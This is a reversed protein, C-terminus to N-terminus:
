DGLQTRLHTIEEKFRHSRDLAEAKDLHARAVDMQGVALAIKAVNLEFYPNAPDEAAAALTLSVAQQTDHLINFQYAGYNNMITARVKAPFRPNALATEVMRSLAEPELSLPQNSATVLLDLFPNLRPFYSLAAIRNTLDELRAAPVPGRSAKILILEVLAHIQGPDLEAAREFYPLAALDASERTGAKAGAIIVARGAEYQSRASAPHHRAEAIALTLPDSWQLTRVATLGALGATLAIGLVMTSRLTLRSRVWPIILAALGLILGMMPLYNRHEFVIELPLFSSEMAHGVLFWGAAFSYAPYRKRLLWASAIVVAIFLIAFLTGAPELLRTSIVIDDHYLAMWGPNPVIIWLLYHCLVRAETLLREALSFDRLAYAQSLWDPHTVVFAFLLLLPLGVSTLFFAKLIRNQKPQITEFQFCTIEVVWALAFILAGSEKSLIALLGFFCLGAISRLLGPEGRTMRLRADTYWLLGCLTFLASLETMRQVIYAVTSVNLPHLLWLAAILLAVWRSDSHSASHPNSPLRPVLRLALLYLLAGNALHILLNVAKFAWPNMGFLVTDLGFSLMSVPRRLMGADSSMAVAMWDQASTGIARLAANDLLNYYDDFLFGGGLSTWYVALCLVITAVVASLYRTESKSPM